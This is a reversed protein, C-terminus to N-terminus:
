IRFQKAVKIKTRESPGTLELMRVILTLVRCVTVNCVYM